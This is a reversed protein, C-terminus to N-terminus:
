PYLEQEEAIDSIAESEAEAPQRLAVWVGLIVATAGAVTYADLREDALLWGLLVAVVPTILAIYAMTIAKSERLLRYYIGFTTVTGLTGLYIATWWHTFNLQVKSLDTTFFMIVLIVSLGATISISNLTVPHVHKAHRKTVILAGASIMPAILMLGMAAFTNTSVQGVDPLFILAIGALGLLIGIVRSASLQEGELTYHSLLITWLPMTGFIVAELGSPVYQSSWYVITYSGAIGLLGNGISAKWELRNAPMPVKKVIVWMWLCIIAVGFRMAAGLFPPLGAESGIRIVLWTSGWIACVLAYSVLFRTRSSTM